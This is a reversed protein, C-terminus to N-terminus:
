CMGKFDSTVDADISFINELRSVGKVTNNTNVM